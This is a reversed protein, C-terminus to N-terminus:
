KTVTIEGRMFTHRDCYFGHRGASKLVISTSSDFSLIRFSFDDTPHEPSGAHLTHDTHDLNKFTIRTGARVELESPTFQFLKISVDSEATPAGWGSRLAMASAAVILAAGVAVRAHTHM